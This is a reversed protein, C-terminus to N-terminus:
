VLVEDIDDFMTMFVKNFEPSLFFFARFPLLSKTCVSSKKHLDSKIHLVGVSACINDSETFDTCGNLYKLSLSTLRRKIM